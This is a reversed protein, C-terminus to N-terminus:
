PAPQLRTNVSRFCGSLEPNFGRYCLVTGSPALLDLRLPLRRTLLYLRAKPPKPVHFPGDSKGVAPLLLRVPESCIGGSAREFSSATETSKQRVCSSHRGRGARPRQPPMAPANRARQSGELPGAARLDQRERRKPPKPSRTRGSTRRAAARRQKARRVGPAAPGGGRPGVARPHGRRKRPLTRGGTRSRGPMGTRRDQPGGALLGRTRPPTNPM